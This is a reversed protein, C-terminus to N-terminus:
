LLKTPLTLHTYSVSDPDRTEIKFHDHNHGFMQLMEFLDCDLPREYCDLYQLEDANDDDITLERITAMMTIINAKYKIRL